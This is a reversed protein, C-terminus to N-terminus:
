TTFLYVLNVHEINDGILNSALAATHKSTCLPRKHIRMNIFTILDKTTQPASPSQKGKLLQWQAHIMNTQTIMITNCSQLLEALTKEM